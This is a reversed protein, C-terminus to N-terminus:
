VFNKPMQGLLLFSYKVFCTSANYGVPQIVGLVFHPEGVKVLNNHKTRVHVYSFSHLICSYVSLCLVYYTGFM